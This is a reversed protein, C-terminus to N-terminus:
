ATSGLHGTRRAVLLVRLGDGLFNIGVVLLVIAICPAFVPWPNTLMLSRGESAMTGWDPMPPPPGLGIYSLSATVLIAFGFRICVEVIITPYLNPLVEKCLIFLITEGRIRAADVYELIVVGLAASRVVRAISSTFILAIVLIGNVIGPGLVGIVFMAFVLTPFAIFVDNLRMVVGDVRGGFYASILGIATGLVTALATSSAAIVITTRTGIILRSLVDRGFRDTGLLFESSPGQKLHTFHMTEADGPAIWPGFIAILTFFAAIGSGILLTTVQQSTLNKM